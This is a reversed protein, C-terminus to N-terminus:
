DWAPELCTNLFSVQRLLGKWVVLSEEVGVEVVIGTATGGAEVVRDGNQPSWTTLESASAAREEDRECIAIQDRGYIYATFGDSTKAFQGAKFARIGVQTVGRFSDFHSAQTQM